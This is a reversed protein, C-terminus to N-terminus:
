LSVQTATHTRTCALPSNQRTRGCRQAFLESVTDYVFRWRKAHRPPRVPSSRGVPKNAFNSRALSAKSSFVCRKSETSLLQVTICFDILLVTFIDRTSEDHLKRILFRSSRVICCRLSSAAARRGRELLFEM